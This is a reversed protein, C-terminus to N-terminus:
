PAATYNNSYFQLTLSNNYMSFYSDIDPQSGEVEVYFTTLGATVPWYLISSMPFYYLSSPMTPGVSLYRFSVGDAFGGEDTNIWVRVFDSVTNTHDFYVVSGFTAMVYGSTPADITLELVTQTTQSPFVAAGPAMQIHAIGPRGNLAAAVANINGANTAIDAANDNIRLNNDDVAAETAEFNENVEDAVAPTGSTFPNPIALDGALAGVTSFFIVGLIVAAFRIFSKM